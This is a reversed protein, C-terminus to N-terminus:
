YVTSLKLSIHPLSFPCGLFFYHFLVPPTPVFCQPANAYGNNDHFLLLYYMNQTHTQLRLYGANLACAGHQITIQPRNPQVMNKWTLEYVVRDESL